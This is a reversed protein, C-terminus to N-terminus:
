YIVIRSLIVLKRSLGYLYHFQNLNDSLVSFWIFLSEVYFSVHQVSIASSGIYFRMDNDFIFTNPYNFTETNAINWESFQPTTVAWEFQNNSLNIM